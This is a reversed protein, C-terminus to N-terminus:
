RLEIEQIADQMVLTFRNRSTTPIITKLNGSFTGQFKDTGDMACLQWQSENYIVFQDGSFMINTYELNFYKTLVLGGAANYVQLRYTGQETNNAFVIGVFQDNGFVSKVEEDQFLNEAQSEPVQDGSYFMIRDDSVAYASKGNMFQVLPVVVNDYDYGSAYNDTENQGVSGFNYFAVSTKVNGDKAYLFSVCLLQGNPSISISVPYGSDKMTTKFNALTKGQADYLNIWTVNTDDLIAAVVGQSAVCFDRIPLNTDIEGLTGKTNAIYILHGNYDGVAAANQCTHIIPAQMEYTQNWQAQGAANMCSMGDKSYQLIYDGLAIVSTGELNSEAITRVVKSESYVKDKWQIYIVALVACVLAASLITRYFVILKHSRIKETYSPAEKQQDSSKKDNHFKSKTYSSFDRVEAM